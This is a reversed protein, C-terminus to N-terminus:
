SGLADRNKKAVALLNRLREEDRNEIAARLAALEHECRSLGALVNDRNQLFIHTWL